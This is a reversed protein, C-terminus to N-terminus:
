DNDAESASAGLLTRDVVDDDGIRTKGAVAAEDLTEAMEIRQQRLVVFGPQLEVHVLHLRPEGLARLRRVADGTEEIGGADHLASRAVIRFLGHRALLALRLGFGCGLRLAKRHAPGRAELRVALATSRLM